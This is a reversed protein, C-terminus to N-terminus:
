PKLHSFITTLAPALLSEGLGTIGEETYVRVFTWDYNAEVV